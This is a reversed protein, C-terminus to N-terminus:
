VRKKKWRVANGAARARLQTKVDDDLRGITISAM